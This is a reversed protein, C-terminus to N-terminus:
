IGQPQPEAIVARSGPHKAPEPNAPRLAALVPQRDVLQIDGAAHQRDVGLPQGWTMLAPRDIPQRFVFVAARQDAADHPEIVVLRKMVRFVTAAEPAQRDIWLAAPRSDALYQHAVQDLVEHASAQVMEIQRHQMVVPLGLAQIGLQPKAGEAGKGDLALVTDVLRQEESRSRLGLEIGIRPDQHFFGMSAADVHLDVIGSGPHEGQGMAPAPYTAAFRQGVQGAGDAHAQALVLAQGVAHEPVRAQVHRMLLEGRGGLVVPCKQARVLPNDDFRQIALLSLAHRYVQAGGLVDLLGDVRGAGEVLPYARGIQAKSM